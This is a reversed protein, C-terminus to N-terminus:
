ACGTTTGCSQCTLCTGTRVLHAGGCTACFDGSPQKPAAIVVRVDTDFLRSEKMWSPLKRAEAAAQAIQPALWGSNAQRPPEEEGRGTSPKPQYEGCWHWDLRPPWLCRVAGFEMPYSSRVRCAGEVGERSLGKFVSVDNPEDPRFFRCTGCTEQKKETM